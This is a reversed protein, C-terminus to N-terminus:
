PSPARRSRRWSRRSRVAARRLRTLPWAAAARRPGTTPVARRCPPASFALRPPPPAYPAAAAAAAAPSPPEVQQVILEIIAERTEKEENQVASDGKKGRGSKKKKNNEKEKKIQGQTVRVARARAKLDKMSLGQLEERFAAANERANSAWFKAKAALNSRKFSRAGQRHLTGGPSLLEFESFTGLAHSANVFSKNTSSTQVTQKYQKGDSEYTHDQYGQMPNAVNIMDNVRAEPEPPARHM